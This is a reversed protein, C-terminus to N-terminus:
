SKAAVRMVKEVAAATDLMDLEALTPHVLLMLGTESLSSAGPLRDDLGLGARVFAQERYIEPCSGALCPIGEASTAEIIRAQDWGPQLQELILFACFKYFAHGVETPPFPVRLGPIGHLREM